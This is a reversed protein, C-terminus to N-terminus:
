LCNRRGRVLRYGHVRGVSGAVILTAAYGLMLGSLMACGLIPPGGNLAYRMMLERVIWVLSILGGAYICSWLLALRFRQMGLLMRVAPLM